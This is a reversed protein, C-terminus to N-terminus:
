NLGFTRVLFVAMQDRTVTNNPCFNGNGCGSTINEHYLQEIWAAAWHNKSIDNFILGTASPPLYDSGYKSRLLLVAMQDRTVTNNPCFNGNGCGSTIGDKYLQEIWSAAWYASSVDNFINGTALPPSYDAGYICKELFVALQARTVYDLPCFNWNGCGSTIQSEYLKEIEQFAWYNQSVDAFRGAKNIILDFLISQSGIHIIRKIDYPLTDGSFTIEYDGDELIPISYGGASGSIAFYTGNNPTITIDGVGEGPDYQANNNADNWVTGVLFRNFHNSYATYAEAFNQTVVLPGVDTSADNEEVIAIGTNTYEGDLSMIAQRHGRGDQMGSGDNGDNGWDINFAAHSYIVSKGYSFVNGRLRVYHFGANQVREIQGTHDQADRAILDNSHALAANFLRIDFAAPPKASYSAFERKLLDLDVHFYQCARQVDPDDLSALWIGEQQPNKRARNILWLMQQEYGNPRSGDENKHLSWEVSPTESYALFINTTFFSLLLIIFVIIQKKM